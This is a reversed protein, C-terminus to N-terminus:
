YLQGKAARHKLSLERNRQIWKSITQEYLDDYFTDKKDSRKYRELQKKELHNARRAYGDIAM